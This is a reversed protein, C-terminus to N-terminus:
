AAFAAGWQDIRIRLPAVFERLREDLLRWLAAPSTTQQSAVNTAPQAGAGVLAMEEVLETLLAYQEQCSQCHALHHAVREREAFVTGATRQVDVYVPLLEQCEDCTLLNVAARLLSPQDPNCHVLSRWRRFVSRCGAAHALAKQPLPESVYAGLLLYGTIQAIAVTYEM